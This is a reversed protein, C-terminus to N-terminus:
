ESPSLIGIPFRRNARANGTPTISSLRDYDAAPRCDIVRGDLIIARM